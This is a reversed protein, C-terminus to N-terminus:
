ADPAVVADSIAEVGQLRARLEDTLHYRSALFGPAHYSVWVAGAVDTWVLIKLPLDLAALPAAVMVPTGAAPSGFVVLKTDPMALGAKAAEGSHDIVAFLTLGRDAVIATLRALTAEVSRPSRKSVVGDASPPEPPSM